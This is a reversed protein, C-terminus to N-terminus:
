VAILLISRPRLLGVISVYARNSVASSSLGVHARRDASRAECGAQGSHWHCAFSRGRHDRLLALPLRCPGRKGLGSPPMGGMLTLAPHDPGESISVVTGVM